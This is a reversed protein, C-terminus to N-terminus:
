GSASSSQNSLQLNLSTNDIIVVVSNLGSNLNRSDLIFRFRHFSDSVALRERDLQNPFSISNSSLIKQGVKSQLQHLCALIGVLELIITKHATSVLTYFKNTVRSYSLSPGGLKDSHDLSLSFVLSNIRITLLSFRTTRRIFKDTFCCCYSYIIYTNFSSYYYSLLLLM